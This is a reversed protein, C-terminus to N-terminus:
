RSLFGSLANNVEVPFEAPLFHGADEFTVATADAISEAMKHGFKAPTMKDKAALLCLTPQSISAAADKCGSEWEEGGEWGMGNGM